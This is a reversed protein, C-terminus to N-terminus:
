VELLAHVINLLYALSLSTSLPTESVSFAKSSDFFASPKSLTANVMMRAWELMEISMAHTALIRAVIWRVLSGVELM